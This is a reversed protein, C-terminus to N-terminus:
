DPRMALGWEGDIAILLPVKSNEQFANIWFATKVPSGQMVLIGGPQHTKIQKIINERSQENQTPYATIMMLQAIKEELSLTQLQENVWGDNLYNLFPPQEQSLGPFATLVLLLFFLIIKHKPGM